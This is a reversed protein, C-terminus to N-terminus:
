DGEPAPVLGFDDTIDGRLAAVLTPDTWAAATAKWEALTQGLVSWRGLEASTQVARVFDSAFRAQEAAPLLEAWPFEEGLVAEAIQEPLHVLVNRLARAAALAEQAGAELASFGPVCGSSRSIM